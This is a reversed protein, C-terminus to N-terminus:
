NVLNIGCLMYPLGIYYNVLYYNWMINITPRYVIYISKQLSILILNLCDNKDSTSFSHPCVLEKACVM